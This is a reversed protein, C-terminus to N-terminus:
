LKYEPNLPNQPPRKTKFKTCDPKSGDIDDNKLYDKRGQLGIHLARPRSGDIDSNCNSLSLKNVEKPAWVKPKAGLNM